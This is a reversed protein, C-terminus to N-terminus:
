ILFFHLGYQLLVNASLAVLFNIWGNRQHEEEIVNKAEHIVAGTFCGSMSTFVGNYYPSIYRSARDTKGSDKYGKASAISGSLCLLLASAHNGLSSISESDKSGENTAAGSLSILM